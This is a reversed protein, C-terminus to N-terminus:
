SKIFRGQVFVRPVSLQEKKNVTERHVYSVSGQPIFGESAFLQTIEDLILLFYTFARNALSTMLISVLLSFIASPTTRDSM